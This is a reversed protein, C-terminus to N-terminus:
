NGFIRRLWSRKRIPRQISNTIAQRRERARQEVARKTQELRPGVAEMLAPLNERLRSGLVEVNKTPEPLHGGIIELVYDMSWWREPEPDSPLRLDVYSIYRDKVFRLRLTDNKLIVLCDGFAKPDYEDHAISFGLEDFLWPLKDTIQQALPSM